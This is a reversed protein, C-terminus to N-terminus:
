RRADPGPDRTPAEPSGQAATRGPRSALGAYLAMWRQAIAPWGCPRVSAVAAARIADPADLVGRLAHEWRGDVVRVFARSEPAHAESGALVAVGRSLADIVAARTASAGEPLLLGAADHLVQPMRSPPLYGTFTVRDGLGRLGAHERAATVAPSAGTVVVHVMPVTIAVATVGDLVAGMAGPSTTHGEVVLIQRRDSRAAHDDASVDIGDPLVTTDALRDCLDPAAGRAHAAERESAAVVADLRTCLTRGGLALWARRTVSPVRGPEMLQGHLSAVVPTGGGIVPLVRLHELAVLEHLHLADIGEAVLRRAARRMGIPSSCGLWTRTAGSINPVRVVRVGDVLTDDASLREHPAMANTTLVTVRHGHSVQARALAAVVAPTPGFAWAPPYYPTVHLIHM